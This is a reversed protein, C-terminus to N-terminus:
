FLCAGFGRWGDDRNGPLAVSVCTLSNFVRIGLGVVYLRWPLGHECKWDNRCNGIRMCGYMRSGYEALPVSSKGM